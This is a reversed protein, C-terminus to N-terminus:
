PGRRSRSSCSSWRRGPTRSCTRARVASGAAERRPRPVAAARRDDRRVGDAGGRARGTPRVRLHRGAGGGRLTGRQLHHRGVQRRRPPPVARGLPHKGSDHGRGRRGDGGQDAAAPAAHAGLERSTVRAARPASRRPARAGTGVGPHAARAPRARHRGGARATSAPRRVAHPGTRARPEGPRGPRSRGVGPPLRRGRQCRQGVRRVGGHRAPADRRRPRLAAAAM